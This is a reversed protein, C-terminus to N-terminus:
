RRWDSSGEVLWIVDDLWLVRKMNMPMVDYRINAAANMFRAGGGEINAARGDDDVVSEFEGRNEGSPM